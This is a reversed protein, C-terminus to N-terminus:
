SSGSAPEHEVGRDNQGRRDDRDEGADAERHFPAREVQQQGSAEADCADARERERDRRDQPARVLSRGLGPGRDARADEGRRQDRERRENGCRPDDGPLACEQGPDRHEEDGEKRDPQREV